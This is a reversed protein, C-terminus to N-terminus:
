LYAEGVENRRMRKVREETNAQTKPQKSLLLAEQLNANSNQSTQKTPDQIASDSTPDRRKWTHAKWKRRTYLKYMKEERVNRKRGTRFRAVNKNTRSEEM